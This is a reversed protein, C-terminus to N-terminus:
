AVALSFEREGAHVGLQKRSASEFMAALQLSNLVSQGGGDNTFVCFTREALGRVQEIRDKWAALEAPSYAYGKLPNSAPTAGQKFENWWWSRQKSHLRFYAIPSTLFATPPMARIHAPQDLNCFAVHYDILTGVAESCMWSEHRMEAVLPFEHFARRLAIFYDRNEKTFRFSWPFQMVLAGLRRARKLERLGTAFSEIGAADLQRDHTFRRHLRATFLFRPNAEVKAAWLRTSSRPCFNWRTFDARGSDRISSAM